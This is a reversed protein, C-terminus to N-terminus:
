GFENKMENLADLIPLPKNELTVIAKDVNLSSDRPRKAVL